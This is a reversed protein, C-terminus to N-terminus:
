VSLRRRGCEAAQRFAAAAEESRGQKALLFGLRRHLDARQPEARVMDEVRTLAAALQVASEDGALDLAMDPAGAGAEAGAGASVNPAQQVTGRQALRAAPPVIALPVDGCGATPEEVRPPEKIVPPTPTARGDAMDLGSSPPVRPEAGPEGPEGPEGSGDARSEDAESRDSDSRWPVTTGAGSPPAAPSGATETGSEMPPAALPFSGNTPTRAPPFASAALSSPLSLPAEAVHEPAGRVGEAPTTADPAQPQELRLAAHRRQLSTPSAPPFVAMATDGSWGDDREDGAELAIQSDDQADQNGGDPLEPAPTLAGDVNKRSAVATLDGAGPAGERGAGWRALAARAEDTRGLREYARSLDFYYLPNGPDHDIARQLTAVAADLHDREINLRGLLHLVRGDDPDLAVARRLYKLASRRDGRHRAYRALHYQPAAVTPDLRAARYYMDEADRQQGNEELAQALHLHAAVDLPNFSLHETGRQLADLTQQHAREVMTLAQAATYHEERRGPLVIRQGHRVVFDSRDITYEVHVTDDLETMLVSSARRRDLNSGLARLFEEYGMPLLPHSKQFRHSTGQRPGFIGGRGDQGHLADDADMVEASHIARSVVRRPDGSPVYHLLFGQDIECVTAMRGRDGNLLRGLIRLSTIYPIRNIAM